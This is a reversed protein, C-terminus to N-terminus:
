NYIFLKKMFFFCKKFEKTQSNFILIKSHEKKFINWKNVINNVQNKLLDDKDNQNADNLYSNDQFSKAIFLGILILWMQIFRM